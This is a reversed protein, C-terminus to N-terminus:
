PTTATSRSSRASRENLYYDGHLHWSLRESDGLADESGVPFTLNANAGFHWRDMGNNYSAWVRVEDDDQLVDEDGIGLEYGVGVAAHMDTEWDQLFAWKIGAALDNMGSEEIPTTNFDVFGDKYAVFQVSETLAARIQLAYVTADGGDLISNGPFQHNVYWFRLDSTVFADENYYPATLPHVATREAPLALGAANPEGFLVTEAHQADARGALALVPLAFAAFRAGQM